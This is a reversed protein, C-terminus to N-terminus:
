EMAVLDADDSALWAYFDPDQDFVTASEDTAVAVPAAATGSGVDARWLSVGLALAFVSAAVGAFAAGVRWSRIRMGRIPMNGFYGAVGGLPPAAAPRLKWRVAPSVQALSARHLTRMAADFGEDRPDHPHMNM